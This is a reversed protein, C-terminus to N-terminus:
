SLSCVVDVCIWPCLGELVTGVDNMVASDGSREGRLSENDDVDLEDGLGSSYRDFAFGRFIGM